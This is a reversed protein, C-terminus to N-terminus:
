EVTSNVGLIAPNIVPVDNLIAVVYALKGSTNSTGAILGAIRPTFEVTSYTKNKTVINDTAFNIIGEHDAKENALIAKVMVGENDRLAKIWTAVETNEQSTFYPSCIYDFQTDEFHNLAKEIEEENNLVFLEVRLPANTNGILADLVYRRNGESLEAPCDSIDYVTHKGLAKEDRLVLAVIGREGRQIATMGEQKFVINVSPLGLAM